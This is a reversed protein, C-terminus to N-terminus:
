HCYLRFIYFSIVHKRLCPDIPDVTRFFVRFMTMGVDSFSRGRVQNDSHEAAFLRLRLVLCFPKEWRFVQTALAIFFRYTSASGKSSCGLRCMRHIGIDIKCRSAFIPGTYPDFLPRHEFRPIKETAM